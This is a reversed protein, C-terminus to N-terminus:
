ALIQASLERVLRQAQPPECLVVCKTLADAVMAEPARVAAFRRANVAAGRRRYYGRHEAPPRPADLDSVALAADRLECPLYSGDPCRLLLTQSHAGFVRLDGGANVLGQTCGAARLAALAQDVAYGKAIGGCDVQVPLRPCAWAPDAGPSLQLDCLRGRGQPLCPDFVGQTQEFLRQSFDLVAWTDRDIAVPEGPAAAGLRALDSGPRHPHMCTEIHRIRAYAAEVAQLACAASCGRTEIAVWTGLGLRLRRVPVSGEGCGAEPAPHAPPLPTPRQREM